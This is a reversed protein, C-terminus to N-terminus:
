PKALTHRLLERKEDMGTGKATRDNEGLGGASVVPAGGRPRGPTRSRGTKRTYGAKTEVRRM